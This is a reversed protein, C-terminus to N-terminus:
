PEAAAAEVVVSPPPPHKDLHLNGPGLRNIGNPPTLSSCFHDPIQMECWLKHLVMGPHSAPFETVKGM